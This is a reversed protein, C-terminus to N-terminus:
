GIARVEAIGVSYPTGARGQGPTGVLTTIWIMLYRHSEAPLLVMDKQMTRSAGPQSWSRGDDSYRLAAEYGGTVSAVEVRSLKRSEGLDIWLGVGDKLGGFDPRTYSQTRWTTQTNGDFVHRALEDRESGDGGPDYTGAARIAVGQAAGSPPNPNLIPIPLRSGTLRLAALVLGAATLIVLLTPLLWRGESKVFSPQPPTAPAPARVTAASSPMPRGPARPAQLAALKEGMESASAFREDPLRGLARMILEELEQPINRRIESPKPPLRELRAMASALETEAPFPTMGTVSEYLVIGLSYLDARGDPEVGEVVEPAVYRLTGLMGGTTTLEGTGFAAQAIGFDVVKLHGSESFMINAPKIDRHVVSAAHAVALAACVDAGIRAVREPPLPGSKTLLDRLTGGLLLEMVIFPLGDHIGTDFVSVINPHSLGAAALAERRFREAFVEDSILHRHLIKTAVERGLVEDAARWVTAMGGHAIEDELRYRGDLKIDSRM